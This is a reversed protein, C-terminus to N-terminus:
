QIGRLSITNTLSTTSCFQTGPDSPNCVNASLLDEAGTTITVTVAVSIPQDADNYITEAEFVRMVVNNSLNGDKGVLTIGPDAPPSACSGSYAKKVLSTGSHVYDIVQSGRVLCLRGVGTAPDITGAARVERTIDDITGRAAQQTRRSAVGAQYIKGVQLFGASVILLMFSFFALAVILEVLTFGTPFGSRGKPRPSLRKSRSIKSPTFGTQPRILKM